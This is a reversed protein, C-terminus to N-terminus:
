EAGEMETKAGCNPCANITPMDDILDEFGRPNILDEGYDLDYHFDLAKILADADILRM